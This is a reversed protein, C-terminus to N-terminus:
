GIEKELKSFLIAWDKNEVPLNDNLWIIFHQLEKKSIGEYSAMLIKKVM